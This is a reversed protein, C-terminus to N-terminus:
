SLIELWEKVARQFVFFKCVVEKAQRGLEQRLQPAQQLSILQHALANAETMDTLIMAQNGFSLDKLGPLEPGVVTLGNAMAGLAVTLNDLDPCASALVFLKFNNFWKKLSVQDSVLWVQHELRMKKILWGIKKRYEANGIIVLRIDQDLGLCIQMAQLLIEMRQETALDVTTGITFYQSGSANALNDYINEQYLYDELKIGPLILSCQEAPQGAELWFHRVPSTLCVLHAQSTQEALLRRWKEPWTQYDATPGELWIVNMKCSQAVSTYIIKEPWNLCIVIKVQRMHKYWLLTLWARLKLWPKQWGTPRALWGFRRTRVPWLNAKFQTHLGNARGLFCFALNERGLSSFLQMLFQYREGKSSDIILIQKKM